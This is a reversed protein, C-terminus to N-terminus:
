EGTIIRQLSWRGERGATTVFGYLSDASAFGNYLIQSEGMPISNSPIWQLRNRVPDVFWEGKPGDWGLTDDLFEMDTRLKIEDGFITDVVLPDLNVTDLRFGLDNELTDYYFTVQFEDIENTQLWRVQGAWKGLVFEESIQDIDAFPAPETPLDDCAIIALSAIVSILFLYKTKM